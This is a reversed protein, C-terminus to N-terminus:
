KKLGTYELSKEWMQKWLEKNKSLKGSDTPVCDYLFLGSELHENLAAYLSTQAGDMPTKLLFWLLPQLITKLVPSFHRPLQTDVGGPHLTFAKITDGYRRNLEYTFLTNCLKSQSYLAHPSHSSGDNQHTDWYIQGRWQALSSVTVVRGKVKQIRDLLLMTLLFHGLHNTGFQMEFGDKTTSHPCMMVGANNILIDVGGQQVKENDNVKGAFERVSAMSSLDLPYVDIQPDTIDSNKQKAYEKVQKSAEHGKDMNRCGLIVHASLSALVKATELGIGSNAGTIIVTKNKLYDTQKLWSSPVQGGRLWQRLFYLLSASVISSVTFVALKHEQFSFFDM